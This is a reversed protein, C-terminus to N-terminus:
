LSTIYIQNAMKKQLLIYKEYMEHVFTNIMLMNKEKSINREKLDRSIRRKTRIEEHVDLFITENCLTRIKQYYFPYLGELIIIDINSETHTINSKKSIFNYSRIPINKTTHFQILDNHLMTIDFANPHDYNDFAETHINKYYNDMSIIISKKHTYKTQIQKAYTTKGAGSGGAIAIIMILRVKGIRVFEM